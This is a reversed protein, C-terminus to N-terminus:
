KSVTDAPVGPVQVITASAQAGGIHKVIAERMAVEADEPSLKLKKLLPPMDKIAMQAVNAVAENDITISKTMLSADAHAILIKAWKEATRDFDMQQAETIKIGLYKFIEKGLWAVGTIIVASIAALIYSSIIDVIPALSISHAVNDHM